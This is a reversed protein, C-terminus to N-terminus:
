HKEEVKAQEGNSAPKGSFEQDRKSRQMFLNRIFEYRNDIDNLM